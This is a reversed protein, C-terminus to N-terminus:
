AGSQKGDKVVMLSTTDLTRVFVDVERVVEPPLGAQNYEWNAGPYVHKPSTACGAGGLLLWATLAAAYLAIFHHKPNPM